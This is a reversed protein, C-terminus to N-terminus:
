EHFIRALAARVQPGHSRLLMTLAAEDGGIAQTIRKEDSAAMSEGATAKATASFFNIARLRRCQGKIASPAPEATLGFLM